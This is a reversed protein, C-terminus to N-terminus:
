LGPILSKLSKCKRKQRVVVVVTQATPAITGAAQLEMICDNVEDALRGTGRRLDKVRKRGHKGLDIVIPRTEARPSTEVAPNTAVTAAM